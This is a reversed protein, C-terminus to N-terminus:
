RSLGDMKFRKLSQGALSRSGSSRETRPQQWSSSPDGQRSTIGISVSCM